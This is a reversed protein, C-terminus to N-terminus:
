RGEQHLHVIGGEKPTTVQLHPKTPDQSAKVWGESIMVELSQVATQIYLGHLEPPIHQRLFATLHQLIAQIGSVQQLIQTMLGFTGVMPLRQGNRFYCSVPKIRGQDYHPLQEMKAGSLDLQFINSESAHWSVPEATVIQMVSKMGSLDLGGIAPQGLIDNTFGGQALWAWAKQPSLHLGASRAIERCHEQLDTFQGNAAYWYDAFRIHQAIRRRQNDQYHKKLWAPDHEGNLLAGLSYAAERGGVHTLTLGASLIPDAFGAAEGVLFWNEGYLREALFSWDNTTRVKGSHTANAILKSIHPQSRLAEHYLVEPPKGAKKYYEAPCVLGLSTRTPGLPIFWLWGFGVSMIQIRTGGVGIHVAWEANEWYDWIAINKLNTPCDTPVGLTRRLIAGHGSADVYYRATVVSGDGLELGTVRDGQHLVKAVGTEERVECGMQAAHRLLIDDYIARDVQLATRRRQGAYPAPRPEDKFEAIPLFEFDWLEASKGWLFTAGIKIPFNAAEVKDWAGMEELISGIQPLQSEGVHERPFKERELILVRRQPHYKKLLTGTTSGGPGGGIIVVDYM